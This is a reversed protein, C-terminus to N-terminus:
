AVRGAVRAAKFDDIGRRVDDPSRALIYLGGMSLIMAQFNRQEESQRGCKNKVEIELRTGDALIGSIDAQGNVGFRMIRDDDIARAVGTSSRWARLEDGRTALYRLIENQVQKETM